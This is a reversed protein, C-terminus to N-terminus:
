LMRARSCPQFRGPITNPPTSLHPQCSLRCVNPNQNAKGIQRPDRDQIRWQGGLAFETNITATVGGFWDTDYILANGTGPVLVLLPILAGCFRLARRTHALSCRFRFM